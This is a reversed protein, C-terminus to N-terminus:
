AYHPIPKFNVVIAVMMHLSCRHPISLPPPPAASSASLFFFPESLERPQQVCLQLHSAVFSPSFNAKKSLL